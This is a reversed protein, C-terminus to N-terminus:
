KPRSKRGGGVKPVADDIMNLIDSRLKTIRRRTREEGEVIKRAENIEKLDLHGECRPCKELSYDHFEKCRECYKVHKELSLLVGGLTGFGAITGLIADVLVHLHTYGIIVGLIAALAATFIFAGSSGHGTKVLRDELEVKGM